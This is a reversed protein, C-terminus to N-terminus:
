SLRRRRQRSTPRRRRRARRRPRPCVSASWCLSSCRIVTTVGFTVGLVAKQVNRTRRVSQLDAPKVTRYGILMLMLMLMLLESLQCPSRAILDGPLRPDRHGDRGVHHSALPRILRRVGESHDGVDVASPCEESSARPSTPPAQGVFDGSAKPRQRRPELLQGLHGGPRARAGRAEEYYTVAIGAM